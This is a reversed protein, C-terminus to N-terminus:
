EYVFVGDKDILAFKKMLNTKEQEKMSKVEVLIDKLWNHMALGNGMKHFKVFRETDELKQRYENEKGKPCHIFNPKFFFNMDKDFDKITEPNAQCNSALITEITHIFTNYRREIGPAIMKQLQKYCLLSKGHLKTIDPLTDGWFGNFSALRVEYPLKKITEYVQEDFSKGQKFLPKM